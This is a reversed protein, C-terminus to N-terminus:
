EVLFYEKWRNEGESAVINKARLSQLYERVMRKSKPEDVRECYLDYVEGAQLPGRDELLNVLVREAEGSPSATRDTEPIWAEDTYEPLRTFVGLAYEAAAAVSEFGSPHTTLAELRHQTFQDLTIEVRRHDQPPWDVPSQDSHIKGHCPPCVPVLNDLANNSKDEDIHHVQVGGPDGCIHCYDGKASIAKERYGM